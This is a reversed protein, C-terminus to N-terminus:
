PLVDRIRNRLALTSAMEKRLYNDTPTTASFNFWYSAPGSLVPKSGILLLDVRLAKVNAWDAAALLSAVRDTADVKSDNAGTAYGLRWAAVNDAVRLDVNVAGTSYRQYLSPHSHGTPTALFFTSTEVPRVRATNSFTGAITAGNVPPITTTQAASTIAGADFETAAVCDSTLLTPKSGKWGFVDPGATISNANANTVPISKYSGHRIVLV